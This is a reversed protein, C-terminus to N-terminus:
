VIGYYNKLILYAALSDLKGDKKKLNAVQLEQAQKSSFSEDVFVIEKEFNILSVFHEIRRKMEDESSGGKPIGVVLIDIEYDQLIKGVDKAAQNRNKRIIADLPMAIKCDICLALGIRKLGIDLALTKM